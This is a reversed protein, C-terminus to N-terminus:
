ATKTRQITEHQATLRCGWTYCHRYSFAYSAAILCLAMPSPLVTHFLAHTKEDSCTEVITPQYFESVPPSPTSAWTQNDKVIMTCRPFSQTALHEIQTTMIANHM